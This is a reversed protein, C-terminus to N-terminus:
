YNVQLQLVFSDRYDLSSKTYMLSLMTNKDLYFIPGFVFRNEKLTKWKDTKDDYKDVGDYHEYRLIYAVDKANQRLQLFWGNSNEDGDKGWIAEGRLITNNRQTMLDIGARNKKVDRGGIRQKGFYLSTGYSSDKKDYNYFRIAVDKANNNDKTNEGTGNVVAIAVRNRSIYLLGADYTQNPFLKQLSNAIAPVELYAGSLPMEYGFPVKIQGMRLQNKNELNLQVLAEKLVVKSTFNPEAVLTVLRSIKLTYKLRLDKVSFQSKPEQSQDWTYRIKTYGSLTAEASFALSIVLLTLAACFGKKILSEM